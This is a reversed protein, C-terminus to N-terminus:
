SEKHIGIFQQAKKISDGFRSFKSTPKANTTGNLYNEFKMKSFLTIPRLYIQRDSGKWDIVKRDIVTKFDPLTYGEAARAAILQVNSGKLSFKTEAQQNLYDLVQEAMKRIEKTLPKETRKKKGKIEIIKFDQQLLQVGFNYVDKIESVKPFAKEQKEIFDPEFIEDVFESLWYFWIRSYLKGKEAIGKFFSEPIQFHRM